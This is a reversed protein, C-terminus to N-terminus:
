YFFKLDYLIEWDLFELPNQQITLDKLFAFLTIVYEWPKIKM